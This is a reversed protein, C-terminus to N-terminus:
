DFKVSEALDRLAFRTSVGLPENYYESKLERIYKSNEQCFRINHDDLIRYERLKGLFQSCCNSVIIINLPRNPMKMSIYKTLNRIQDDINGFDLREHPINGYLTEIYDETNGLGKVHNELVLKQKEDPYNKPMMNCVVLKTKPSHLFYNSLHCYYFNNQTVSFTNGGAIYVLDLNECNGKFDSVNFPNLIEDVYNFLEEKAFEEFKNGKKIQEVLESVRGKFNKLPIGYNDKLYENLLLIKKDNFDFM